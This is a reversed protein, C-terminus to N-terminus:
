CYIYYKPLLIKITKQMLFTVQGWTCFLVTQKSTKKTERQSFITISTNRNVVALSVVSVIQM